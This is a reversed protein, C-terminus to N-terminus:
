SLREWWSSMSPQFGLAIGTALVGGSNQFALIELYDGAILFVVGSCDIATVAAANGPQASIDMGLAVGNVAPQVFRTGVGNPAFTGRGVFPYWGTYRATFRSNNVATDHANGGSPDKDVVETDFALPTGVGSAINQAVTQYVKILPKNQLFKVAAVLGANVEAATLIGDDLDEATPVAPM